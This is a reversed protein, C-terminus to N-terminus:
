NHAVSQLDFMIHLLYRYRISFAAFRLMLHSYAHLMQLYCYCISYCAIAFLLYCFAIAFQTAYLLLLLLYCTSIAFLLLLHCFCIAFALACLLLFHCCCYCVAPCLTCNHIYHGCLTVPRNHICCSCSVLLLAITGGCVCFHSLWFCLAITILMCHYLLQQAITSLCPCYWSHYTITCPPHKVLRPGEMPLLTAHLGPVTRSTTQTPHTPSFILQYAIYCIQAVLLPSLVAAVALCTM